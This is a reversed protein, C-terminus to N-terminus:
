AGIALVRVVLSSLDTTAAVEVLPVNAGGVDAPDTQEFVVLAEATYDYQVVRGPEANADPLPIVAYFEALGVDSPVLSEGGTAYSADFTVNVVAAKANGLSLAQLRSSTNSVSLAM